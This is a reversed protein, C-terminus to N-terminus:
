LAFHEEFDIYSLTKIEENNESIFYLKSGYYNVELVREGVIYFASLSETEYDCLVVCLISNEISTIAAATMLVFIGTKGFNYVSYSLYHGFDELNVITIFSHSDISALSMWYNDFKDSEMEYFHVDGTDGKFLSSSTFIGFSHKNKYIAGRNTCIYVDGNPKHVISKVGQWLVPYTEQSIPTTSFIGSEYRYQDLTYDDDKTTRYSIYFSDDFSDLYLYTMGEFDFIKSLIVEEAGFKSVEYLDSVYVEDDQLHNVLYYIKENIVFLSPTVDTVNIIGDYQKEFLLLDNEYVKLFSIEEAVVLSYNMTDSIDVLVEFDNKHHVDLSIPNMTDEVISLLKDKASPGCSTLCFIFSVFLCTVLAIRNKPPNKIHNNIFQEM